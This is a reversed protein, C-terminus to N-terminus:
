RFLDDLDLNAGKQGLEDAEDAMRELIAHTAVFPEQWGKEIEISELVQAGIADQDEEPLSQAQELARQLLLTM